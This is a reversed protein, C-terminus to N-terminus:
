KQLWQEEFEKSLAIIQKNLAVLELTYKELKYLFALAKKETFNSNLAKVV